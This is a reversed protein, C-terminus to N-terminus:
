YTARGGSLDFIAGTSFSNEESALWSVLSALEQVKVFRNRPIKSLMYDIHEQSMQDFIRTKAAVPTVCNVAINKDALEKGLSKTFGIVAAKASSYASANPNGEKGAISAINVIRGYNNKIMHPVIAKCCYFVANLDLDIVKHWEDIPYSWVKTNPGSIGANNIFIDIKKHEKINKEIEKSVKEFKTVDLVSDFSLKPNNIKKISKKLTEGDVDWMIVKAGSNILRESIALGFGQAAGTVIATRNKLDINNM